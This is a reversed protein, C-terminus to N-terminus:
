EACLQRLRELALPWTQNMMDVYEDPVGSLTVELRTSGDALQHLHYREYAEAWDPGTGSAGDRLEGLHQISVYSPHEAREIRARMGGGGPGLFRMDAGTRWEGEFYSGECFARTWERYTADDLMCSWVRARSAPIEISYHLPKTV